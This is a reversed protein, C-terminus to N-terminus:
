FLSKRNLLHWILYISATLALLAGFIFSNLITNLTSDYLFLTSLSGLMIGCELAIFMTGAGVGRRTVDSLDATWAFLTPSSIGTACGFIIAAFTYSNISTSLGILLMATILFLNGILLTKRRGIRDSLSGSFLRILITSIVYVGFFWGKNNIGLFNSIDPTIVFIIGSSAATLFMVVAAPFVTPEVVDKWEIRLVRLKFPQKEELTEKVFTALVLSILCIFGSFGFLVTYNSQMFIWSGLAQGLGIGLSIFTGWIGMAQGRSKEPLVDTVLATAGTPMFGASFGHLFRLVFFFLLSQAIPYTLSVLICIIIGIYISTKRGVLDAIKGSFPRSIGASITFLTIILGKLESSGLATLFGNLEPMILNFSMMFFFMSLSMLWFNSGYNFRM